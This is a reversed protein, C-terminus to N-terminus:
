RGRAERWDKGGLWTLYPTTMKLVVRGGIESRREGGRSEGVVEETKEGRKERRSELKDRRTEM